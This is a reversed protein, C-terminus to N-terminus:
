LESNRDGKIELSIVLLSEMYSALTKHPKLTMGWHWVWGAIALYLLRQLVLDPCTQFPLTGPFHTHCHIFKSTFMPTSDTSYGLGRKHRDNNIVTM